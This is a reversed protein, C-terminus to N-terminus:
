KSPPSTRAHLIVPASVPDFDVWQGDRWEGDAKEVHIAGHTELTAIASQEAHGSEIRVAVVIGAPRRVPQEKTGRGEMGHLAGMLSGVYAGIGAGVAAGPPGAVVAGIAAGTGLGAAAGKGADADAHRAGPDEDEDGGIPFADHQGPPNNAFTYVDGTTFEGRLLAGVAGEATGLTKFMGAIITTM